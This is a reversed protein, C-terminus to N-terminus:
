LEGQERAEGKAKIWQTLYQYVSKKYVSSMRREMKKECACVSKRWECAVATFYSFPHIRAVITRKRKVSRAEERLFVKHRMKRLVKWSCERSITYKTNNGIVVRDLVHM